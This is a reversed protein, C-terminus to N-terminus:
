RAARNVIQRLRSRADVIRGALVDAETIAALLIERDKKRNHDYIIFLRGDPAEDGDPYSVAPREDLVLGGQWTAGDDTSLYATLHSRPPAPNASKAGALWATDMRPNHKVLLLQGSRLRRIFFRSALHPITAPKAEAWTRGGDTSFSEAMGTRNRALLWLRGDRREVIMHEDFQPNPIQVSALEAFTEGRDASRYIKAGVRAPDWRLQAAPVSKRDSPALNAVPPQNWDSIPLLWDGSRLVTPKNMMIGDAIRRPASWAPAADQPNDARVAWVGARGDWWKYSQAYFCWMRGAPDTWLVPDFTRVPDPADIVTSIESWTAGDDDSTALMVYNEPGEDPGGGYWTAWLRGNAARALGPIGQFDRPAPLSAEGSVRVIRAPRLAPEAEAGLVGAPLVLSLAALAAFRHPLAPNM